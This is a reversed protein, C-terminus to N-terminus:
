GDLWRGVESLYKKTTLKAQKDGLAPLYCEAYCADCLFRLYRISSKGHTIERAGYLGV